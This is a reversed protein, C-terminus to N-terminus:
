AAVDADSPDVDSPEPAFWRRVSESSIEIESRESVERAIAEWPYKFRRRDAVLAAFDEGLGKEVLLYLRSRQTV